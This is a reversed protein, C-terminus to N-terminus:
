YLRRYSVAVEQEVQPLPADVGAQDLLCRAHSPLGDLQPWIAPQWLGSRLASRGCHVFAEEVHVLLALEPVRGAVAMRERLELDRVIAARGNVRLTEARGPVMFLLGVRPSELVNCLTDARRNGPRDPIALTSDDLVLVFGPPDGKPSVDVEGRANVSGIVVFPSRRIIERCHPDLAPLAKAMARQAPPPLIARLQAVSTITEPM